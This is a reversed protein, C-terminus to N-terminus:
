EARIHLCLARFCKLIDYLINHRLISNQKPLTYYVNLFLSLSQYDIILHLFFKANYGMNEEMLGMNKEGIGAVIQNRKQNCIIYINM